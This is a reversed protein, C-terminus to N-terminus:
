KIFLTIMYILLLTFSVITIRVFPLVSKRYDLRFKLDKSKKYYRYLSISRNTTRIQELSYFLDYSKMLKYEKYNQLFVIMLFIFFASLHLYFLLENM